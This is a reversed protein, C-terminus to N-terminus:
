SRNRFLGRAEARQAAIAAASLEKQTQLLDKRSATASRGVTVAVEPGDGSPELDASNGAQEGAVVMDDFSLDNLFASENVLLSNDQLDDLDIATINLLDRAGSIAQKMTTSPVVRGGRSRRQQQNPTEPAHPKARGAQNEPKAGSTTFHAIQQAAAQSLPQKGSASSNVMEEDGRQLHRQSQVSNEKEATEGERGDPLGSDRQADHSANHNREQIIVLPIDPLEMMDEAESETEADDDVSFTLRKVADTLSDTSTDDEDEEDDEERGHINQYRSNPRHRLCDDEVPEAEKVDEPAATSQDDNEEEARVGGDEKEGDDESGARVLTAMLIPEEGEERKEEMKEEPDDGDDPVTIRLDEAQQRSLSSKSNNQHSQDEEPVPVAMPVTNAMRATLSPATVLAFASPDMLELQPESIARQMLPATVTHSAEPGEEERRRPRASRDLDQPSLKAPQVSWCPLGHQTLLENLKKQMGIDAADGCKAALDGCVDARLIEMLQRAMQRAALRTGGNQDAWLHVLSSQVDVLSRCLKRGLATVEFQGQRVTVLSELQKETLEALASQMTIATTMRIAKDKDKWLGLRALSCLVKVCGGDAMQISNTLAQDANKQLFRNGLSAKRILIELVSDLNGSRGLRAALAPNSFLEGICSLSGRALSSRLSCAHVLLKKLMAELEPLLSQPSLVAARQILSIVEVVTKWDDSSLKPLVDKGFDAPLDRDGLM